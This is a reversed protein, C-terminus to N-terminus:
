FNYCAVMKLGYGKVDTKGELVHVILLRNQATANSSGYLLGHNVVVCNMENFSAIFSIGIPLDNSWQM